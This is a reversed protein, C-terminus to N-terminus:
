QQVVRMSHPKSFDLTQGDYAKVKTMNENEVVGSFVALRNYSLNDYDSLMVGIGPDAQVMVDHAY